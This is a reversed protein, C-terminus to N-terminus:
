LICSGSRPIFGMGANGQGASLGPDSSAGGPEDGVQDPEIRVVKGDKVFLRLPCRSGCNVNCSSWVVKDYAQKM